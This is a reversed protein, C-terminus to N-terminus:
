AALMIAATALVDRLISALNAAFRKGDCLPSAAMRERLGSRLTALRPLDGGLSVALEVYDDFNRAIMETLGVSYLQPLSQRGAFTEGPCTVVPVGMWLADATTTMGSYPFPDLALDVRGYEALLEPQPSYGLFEVRGPDVGRAAFMASFRRVMDGDDWGKYKLVLRARPLRSLIRAWVEIVQPTVKCPNNFCAFTMEGRESAPLATVAPAIDPPTYCTYGDPMRLVRERCYREAGDPVTYRDALLYDMATLGTTGVYGLWTVQIPAPKRAFVLLRHGATHGALDFLIDIRDERIQHALQEDSMAYVDRWRAALAQIRFTLDDKHIRNSYLTTEYVDRDLNEIAPLLFYGVPHRGLDPSVFGLRLRDTPGKQRFPGIHGAQGADDLGKSVEDRLLGARCDPGVTAAHRRDFEAHAEALDTPTVSPRFQLVYLLNSHTQADNPNLELARRYCDLAEDLKAQDKLANGLNLHAEAFDPKLELARRFCAVAEGLKGQRALVNGLNTHGEAYGPKLELARRHCAAAEDLRRRDNLVVGLNGYAEAFDPQIAATRRFCAIAEDLKGQRRLATGLNNMAGVHDPKLALARRFCVVAEDIKEQDMLVFGLNYHAEAYDPKVALAQRYCAAAEDLKGLDRLVNGLNNLTEVHNPKLSLARRYCEAADDLKGQRKLACASTTGPTPMTRSSRSREATAPSPTM